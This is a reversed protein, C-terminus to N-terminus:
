DQGHFHKRMHVGGLRTIEERVQAALEETGEFNVNVIPRNKAVWSSNTLILQYRGGKAQRLTIRSVSHWGFLAPQAGAAALAPRVQMAWQFWFMGGGFVFAIVVMTLPWPSTFAMAVFWASAYMPM